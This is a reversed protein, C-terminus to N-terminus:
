HSRFSTPKSVIAAGAAAGILLSAAVFAIVLPWPPYALSIEVGFTRGLEALPRNAFSRVAAMLGLGGAAALGLLLSGAYIFPRRVFDANAGIQQLLRLEAPDAVVLVRVLCIALAIVLLAVIAGTPVLLNAATRLLGTLRRYWQMEAQVSDVRSQKRIAAVAAEVVSPSVQPVFEVVLVDPLPNPRIDAFPQGEGARRQLETWALDRPILRVRAVGDIAELRGSLAKVESPATGAAIFATAEAAPLRSLMPGIAQALMFACGPLALAIAAILVGAVTLGPREGLM